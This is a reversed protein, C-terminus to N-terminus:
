MSIKQIVIVTKFSNRINKNIPDPSTKLGDAVGNGTNVLADTQNLERIVQQNEPNLDNAHEIASGVTHTHAPINGKTLTISLSDSGGAKASEDYDSNTHNFGRFTGETFDETGNNGNKIAWKKYRGTSKGKGATLPNTFDFKDLNVNSIIISDGIQFGLDWYNDDQLLVTLQELVLDQITQQTIVEQVTVSVTASSTNTGDDIQYDFDDIGKFGENPIYKITKNDAEITATGNSPPTVITVVVDPYYLDNNIVDIYLTTDQNMTRYDNVAVPTKHVAQYVECITDIMDQSIEDPTADEETIGEAIWCSLNLDNWNILGDVGPIGQAGTAGTDGKPGQSTTILEENCNKCM